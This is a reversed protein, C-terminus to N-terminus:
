VECLFFIFSLTMDNLNLQCLATKSLYSIHPHVRNSKCCLRHAHTRAQTSAFKFCPSSSADFSKPGVFFWLFLTFLQAVISHTGRLVHFLLFESFFKHFYFNLVSRRNIHLRAYVPFFDLFFYFSGKECNCVGVGM